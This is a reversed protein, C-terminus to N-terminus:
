LFLRMWERPTGYKLIYLDNRQIRRRFEERIFIEYLYKPVGREHLWQPIYERLDWDFKAQFADLFYDLSVEQFPHEEM